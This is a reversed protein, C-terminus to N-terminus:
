DDDPLVYTRPPRERKELVFQFVHRGIQFRDGNSLERARVEGGNLTTGNRSGLDRLRYGGECFELAVHEHSMAPDPFALDATEGRGLTVNARELEYESGEPGGGVLVVAARWDALFQEFRPTGDGRRPEIKRTRGDRM